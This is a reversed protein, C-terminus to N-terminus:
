CVSSAAGSEGGVSTPEVLGEKASSKFGLAPGATELGGVDADVYNQKRALESSTQKLKQRAHIKRRTHVVLPSVEVYKYRSLIDYARIL